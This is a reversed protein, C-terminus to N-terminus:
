KLPSTESLKRNMKRTDSFSIKQKSLHCSAEMKRFKIVLIRIKLTWRSAAGCPLAIGSEKVPIGLEDSEVRGGYRRVINNHLVYGNTSASLGTTYSNLLVFLPNESLVGCIIGILKDLNEEIV